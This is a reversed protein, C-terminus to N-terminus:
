REEQEQNPATFDKRELSTTENMACCLVNEQGTGTQSDHVEITDPLNQPNTYTKDFVKLYIFVTKKIQVLVRAKM